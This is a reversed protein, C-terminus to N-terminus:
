TLQSCEQSFPSMCSTVQHRAVTSVLMVAAVKHVLPQFVSTREFHGQLEVLEGLYVFLESNKGASKLKEDTRLQRNKM